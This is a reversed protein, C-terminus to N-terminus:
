LEHARESIYKITMPYTLALWFARSANDVEDDPFTGGSIKSVFYLAPWAFAAMSVRMSVAIEVPRADYVVLKDLKVPQLLDIPDANDLKLVEHLVDALVARALKLVDALVARALKLVDHLVDALVARALKLADALV